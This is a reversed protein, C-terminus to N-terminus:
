RESIGGDSGGDDIGDSAGDADARTSCHSSEDSWICSQSPSCIESACCTTGEPQCTDVCRLAVTGPACCLSRRSDGCVFSAPCCTSGCSLSESSNCASAAPGDIRGPPAGSIQHVNAGGDSSQGRYALEGPLRDSGAKPSDVHFPESSCSSIILSSFVVAIFRVM